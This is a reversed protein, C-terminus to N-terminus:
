RRPPPKPAGPTRIVRNGTRGAVFEPVSRAFSSASVAVYLLPGGDPNVRFRSDVGILDFGEGNRVVFGSGSDGRATDCEHAFAQNPFVRVIRCRENGSLNDGTDWSYGAQMLDTSLAAAADETISRVQAYGVQDGLRRDLRLLAWDLGDITQANAFHTSRSRASILYAIVNAGHAGSATTFRANANVGFATEICHAATVIVNPAILTASCREGSALDLRGMFRWPAQTVDVLVRDDHGFFHDEITMPRTRGHCDARDTDVACLGSGSGPEDCVGNFATDCSDTRNPNWATTSCDTRDTGQTCAGTGIRPEDCEGDNAWRCSDDGGARVARCDNVDTGAACAGTGIGPEDCEGDDAHRCTPANDAPAAPKTEQKFTPAFQIPSAGTFQATAMCAAITAAAAFIRMEDGCENPPLRARATPARFGPFAAAAAQIQGRGRFCARM